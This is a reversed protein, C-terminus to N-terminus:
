GSQPGALDGRVGVLPRDPRRDFLIRQIAISWRHPHRASDAAIGELRRAIVIGLMVALAAADPAMRWVATLVPMAVWGLLVSLAIQRGALGALYFALLVPLFAPVLGAAAGTAVAIGRGGNFRLWVPWVSGALAALAVAGLLWEPAHAWRAVVLPGLGQAFQAPGVVAALPLGVNRYINATGPNGTGLRRIDLRARWRVALWGLPISGVLYAFALLSIAAPPTVGLGAGVM